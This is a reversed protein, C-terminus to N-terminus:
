IMFASSSSGFKVFIFASSAVALALAIVQTYSSDIGFAMTSSTDDPFQTTDIKPELGILILRSVDYGAERLQTRLWHFSFVLVALTSLFSVAFLAQQCNM